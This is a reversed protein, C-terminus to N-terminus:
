GVDKGWMADNGGQAVFGGDVIYSNDDGQVEFDYVKDVGEYDIGIVLGVNALHTGMTMDKLLVYEENDKLLPQTLTTHTVCGKDTRVSFIMNESTHIKKVLGMGSATEVIDGQKIDEINRSAGGGIKVQTGAPFCSAVTYLTAAQSLGNLVDGVGTEPGTKQTTTGGGRAASLGSNLQNEIGFSMNYLNNAAKAAAEQAASATSIPATASSLLNSYLGQNAQNAGMTNTYQQQTLGATRDLATNSNGLQQQTLGANANNAQMTGSFKQTALGANSNNAQMANSFQSNYIGANANNAQM